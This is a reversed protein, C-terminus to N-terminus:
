TPGKMHSSNHQATVHVVMHPVKMWPGGLAKCCCRLCAGEVASPNDAAAAAEAGQGQAKGACAMVARGGATTDAPAWLLLLLLLHSCSCPRRHHRM